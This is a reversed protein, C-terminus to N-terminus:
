GTVGSLRLTGNRKAYKQLEQWLQSTNQVGHVHVEKIYTDGGGGQRFQEAPKAPVVMEGRHLYALQNNPVDWAGAAYRPKNQL